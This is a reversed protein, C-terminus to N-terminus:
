LKKDKDFAADVAKQITAEFHNSQLATVGEITTGGPSCVRDVLEWPHIGSEAIQKASGLVTQAVIELAVQKNMGNKVAARALSDIFMYAYAPACGAVVGFISFQAEPLDICKGFSSCLKNVFEKEEETVLNNYCYASMAEGVTANINPMIRVIKADYSLLNSIYEITKGAAISIILSNNEKLQDNIEPLLSPFVNPKVALVVVNSNDIVAQASDCATIKLDKATEDLKDKCIDFANINESSILKSNIVGKIIATAMNGTGIFGIKM